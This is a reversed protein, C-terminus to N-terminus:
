STLHSDFVFRSSASYSLSSVPSPLKQFPSSTFLCVLDYDYGITDGENVLIDALTYKTDSIFKHGNIHMHMM